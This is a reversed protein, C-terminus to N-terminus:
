YASFQLTIATLTAAPTTAKAIIISATCTAGTCSTVSNGNADTLAVTPAAAYGGLGGMGSCLTNDIFAYGINRRQALLKEACAMTLEFGVFQDRGTTQAKFVQPQIALIAVSVAALMAIVIVTEFLTFGGYRRPSRFGGHRLHKAGKM